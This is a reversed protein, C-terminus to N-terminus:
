CAGAFGSQQQCPFTVTKGQFSRGTSNPRGREGGVRGREGAIVAFGARVLSIAISTRVRM